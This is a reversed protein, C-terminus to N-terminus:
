FDSKKEKLSDLLEPCKKNVLIKLEPDLTAGHLSYAQCLSDIILNKAGSLDASDLQVSDLQAGCFNVNRLIANSFDSRRLDTNSLNAGSLDAGNLKARNLSSYQLHADRLDANALVSAVLNAGELHKSRLNVSYISKYLVNPNQSIIQYSLDVNLGEKSPIKYIYHLVLLPSVLLIIFIFKFLRFGTRKWFKIRFSNEKNIEKVIIFFIFIGMLFIFGVVIKQIFSINHVALEHIVPIHYIGYAFLILVIIILIDWYFEDSKNEHNKSILWFTAVFFNGLLSFISIILMMEWSHTRAYWYNISFLVFPLSGWIILNWIAIQLWKKVKEGNTNVSKFEGFEFVPWMKYSVKTKNEPLHLFHVNYYVFLLFLILPSIIFFITINVETNILPLRVPDNLILQTDTISITTILIYILTSFYILFIRNSKKKSDDRKIDSNEM